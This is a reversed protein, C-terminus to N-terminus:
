QITSSALPIKLITPQILGTNAIAGIDNSGGNSIPQAAIPSVSNPPLSPSPNSATTTTPTTPAATTTTTPAPTSSAPPNLISNILSQLSADGTDVTPTDVTAGGDSSGLNQSLALAELQMQNQEDQAASAANASDSAAANTEYNKFVVYAIGAVVLGGAIYLVKKKDM